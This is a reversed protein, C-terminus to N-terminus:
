EIVRHAAAKMLRNMIAQGVGSDPFMESYIVDVDKYNFSRLGEYLTAAVTELDERKGCAFIYDADYYNKHEKTTLVGVKKGTQKAENILLQIREKTGKVLFLPVDPAYHSYKMGPAKPKAEKNTLASDLHVEGIIQEIQEITIGGPRLITPMQDTCDIVTSEVGVGTSGGDLIGAIKGDLDEKVHVANTPSPKGSQNASPAAIPLNSQEILKLAVPHDPMRVGVTPLGATAYPSLVGKKIRLIITLAGPWFAEMLQKAVAPIEEVFEKIQEQKAIHIILPNDSPRGKAAFIKKIAQDDKANGGLGYVTETPFAVVENQKLFDAAKKIQPYSDISDVTKDVEWYITEM